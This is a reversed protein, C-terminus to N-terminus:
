PSETEVWSSVLSVVLGGFNAKPVIAARWQYVDASKIYKLEGLATTAAEAETVDPKGPLYMPDSLTLHGLELMEQDLLKAKVSFQFHKTM